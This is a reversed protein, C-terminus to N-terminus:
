DRDKLCVIELSFTFDVHLLSFTGCTHWFPEVLNKLLKIFSIKEMFFESKCLKASSLAVEDTLFFISSDNFVKSFDEFTAVFQNLFLEIITWFIGCLNQVYSVFDYM